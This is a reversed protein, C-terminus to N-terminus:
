IFKSRCLGMQITPDNFSNGSAIEMLYITDNQYLVLHATVQETSAYELEYISLCFHEFFSTMQYTGDFLLAVINTDVNTEPQVTEITLTGDGNATITGEDTVTFENTTRLGVIGYKTTM